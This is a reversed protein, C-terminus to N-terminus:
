WILPERLPPSESEKRKERARERPEERGVVLWVTSCFCVCVGGGGRDGGGISRVGRRSTELEAGRRTRKRARADGRSGVPGAVAPLYLAPPSLPAPYSGLSASPGSSLLRVRVGALSNPRTPSLPPPPRPLSPLVASPSPRLFGVSCGWSPVAEIAALHRTALWRSHACAERGRPAAPSLSARRPSLSRGRAFLFGRLPLVRSVEQTNRLGRAREAERGEGRLSSSSFDLCVSSGLGGSGVRPDERAESHPLVATLLHYGGAGKRGGGRVGKKWSGPKRALGMGAPKPILLRLVSKCISAEWNRQPPLLWPM